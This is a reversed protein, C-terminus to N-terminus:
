LEDDWKRRDCQSSNIQQRIELRNIFRHRHLHSNQHLLHHPHHQLQNRMILVIQQRRCNCTTSFIKSSSLSNLDKYVIWPRHPATQQRRHNVKVARLQAIFQAVVHCSRDDLCRADVRQVHFASIQQMGISVTMVWKVRISVLQRAVIIAINQLCTISADLVILSERECSTGNVAWSSIVISVHLISWTGHEDRRKRANM